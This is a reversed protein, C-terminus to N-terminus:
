SRPAGCSATIAFCSRTASGGPTAASVANASTATVSPESSLRYFQIRREGSGFKNQVIRPHRGYQNKLYDTDLERGKGDVVRFDRSLNAFLVRGNKTYKYDFIGQGYRSDKKNREKEDDDLYRKLLGWRAERMAEASQPRFKGSADFFPKFVDTYPCNKKNFHRRARIVLDKFNKMDAEDNSWDVPHPQLALRHLIEDVSNHYNYIDRAKEFIMESYAPLAGRASLARGAGTYKVADSEAKLYDLDGFGGRTAQEEMMPNAAEVRKHTELNLIEAARRM